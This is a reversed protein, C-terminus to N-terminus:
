VKFKKKYIFDIFNLTKNISNKYLFYKKFMNNQKIWINQNKKNKIKKIINKIKKHDNILLSINREILGNNLNEKTNISKFPDKYQLTPVNFYIFDLITSTNTPSICLDSIKALSFLHKNTIIIRDRYNKKLKNIVDLTYNCKMRPHLKIYISVYPLILISRILNELHNKLFLSKSPYINFFSKYPISVIFKNKKKYLKSKRILIRKVWDPDYRPIGFTMIKKKDLFDSWRKIDEKGNILLIDGSLDYNKKFKKKSFFIFPSHPFHIVLSKDGRKQATEYWCNPYSSESFIYKFYQKKKNKLFIKKLIDIDHIKFNLFKFNKPYLVQFIKRLLKWHFNHYNNEIFYKDNIQSWENFLDKNYELIEFAKKSKFHTYINYKQSLKKLLPLAWDVEGASGKLLLLVSNEKM